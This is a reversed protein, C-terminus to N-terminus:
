ARQQRVSTASPYDTYGKETDSYLTNMDVANLLRARAFANSWTPIPWSPSASLRCRRRWAKWCSNKDGVDYDYQDNVLLAGKISGSADAADDAAISAVVGNEDLWIERVHLFALNFPVCGGETAAVFLPALDSTEPANASGNIFPSLRLGTREAIRRRQDSRRGHRRALFRVRNEISGGYADTRLNSSDRLFQDILYGHAGHIEM